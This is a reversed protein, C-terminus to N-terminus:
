FSTGSKATGARVTFLSYFDLEQFNAAISHYKLSLSNVFDFSKDHDHHVQWVEALIWFEEWVIDQLYSM